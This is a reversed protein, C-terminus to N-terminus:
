MGRPYVAQLGCATALEALKQDSAHFEGDTPRYQGGRDNLLIVYSHGVTLNTSHCLGPVEGSCVNVDMSESFIVSKKLGTM